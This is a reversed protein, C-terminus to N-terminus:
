RCGTRPSPLSRCKKCPLGGRHDFSPPGFSPSHSQMLRQENSLKRCATIEPMLQPTQSFGALEDSLRRHVAVEGCDVDEVPWVAGPGLITKGTGCGFRTPTLHYCTARGPDDMASCWRILRSKASANPKNIGCRSSPSRTMTPSASRLMRADPRLRRQRKSQITPTNREPSPSQRPSWVKRATCTRTARM